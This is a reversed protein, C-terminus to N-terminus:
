LWCFAATIYVPVPAFGRASGSRQADSSLCCERIVCQVTSQLSVPCDELSRQEVWVEM